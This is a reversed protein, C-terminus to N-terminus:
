KNTFERALIYELYMFFVTTLLIGFDGIYFEMLWTWKRMWKYMKYLDRLYDLMEVYNMNSYYEDVVNLQQFQLELM